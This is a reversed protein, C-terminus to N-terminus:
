AVWIAGLSFFMRGLLFGRASNEVFGIIIVFRDRAKEALIWSIFICYLFKPRDHSLTLWRIEAIEQYLPPPSSTAASSAKTSTSWPPARRNKAVSFFVLM